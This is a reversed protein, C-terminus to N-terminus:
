EKYFYVNDMYFNKLGPGNPININEYIILGVRNKVPLGIPLEITIWENAKIKSSKPVFLQQRTNDATGSNLGDPGFDVLTILFDFNPPVEGPIYMNFHIHTMKSLDATPNAFQHGVFNFNTYSLFKDVKGDNTVEFDNSLTTQYPQWYGNFFDVKISSYFDSFVSIVNNPNRTPVPPISFNGRSNITISDVADVGGVFENTQTNLVGGLNGKVVAVGPGVVSILGNENVTAVKTDSSKFILYSPAPFVSLDSGTPMNFNVKLDSIPINVGVFSDVKKNIGNAITPRPKGITGLKEFKIEDIWFTYGKGNTDNTNAAYRLMGKEQVLKSADPIPIIFKTWITGLSVNRLTTIYKNPYFDEGFGFEAITVGQSAKAWFTLADYGSLDRGAGDVRFIGGAYNGEADNENPVDFRMSANGKYSVEQDVTWANLKSGVPNDPGAGYPFYFNTGMGIPTDTFIEATKSFKPDQLDKDENQCALIFLLSAIAFSIKRLKIILHTKM